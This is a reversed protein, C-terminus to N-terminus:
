RVAPPTLREAVTDLSPVAPLQFEAPSERPSFDIAPGILIFIRLFGPQRSIGNGAYMDECAAPISRQAAQSEATVIAGPSM